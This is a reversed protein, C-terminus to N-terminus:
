KKKDEEKKPEQKVIVVQTGALLDHVGKKRLLTMGAIAPCWLIYALTVLRVGYWNREDVYDALDYFVLLPPYKILTRIILQLWSAPEYKENVIKTKAIRNGGVGGLFTEAAFIILYLGLHVLSSHYFKGHLWRAIKSFLPTGEGEYTVFLVELHLFGILGWLLSFPINKIVIHKIDMKEYEAPMSPTDTKEEAYTTTCAFLFLLPLIIKKM